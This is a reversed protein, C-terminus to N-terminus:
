DKILKVNSQENGNSIKVIYIGKTWNHTDIQENNNLVKGSTILSGRLDMVQYDVETECKITFAEKTPNPYVSFNFAKPKHVALGSSTLRFNVAGQAHNITL